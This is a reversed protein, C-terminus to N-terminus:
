NDHIQSLTHEIKKKLCFVAYSIRMLSQLESTHEESRTLIPSDSSTVPLSGTVNISSGGCLQDSSTHVSMVRMSVKFPACDSRFLTTYPFLTDTRTSRPPRRIIVSFLVDLFSWVCVIGLLVPCM